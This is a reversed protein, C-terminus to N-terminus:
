DSDDDDDCLDPHNMAIAIWAAPVDKIWLSAGLSGALEKAAKTKKSKSTKAKKELARRKAEEKRIAATRKNDLALKKEKEKEKKLNAECSKVEKPM